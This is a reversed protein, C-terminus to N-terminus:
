YEIERINEVLGGVMDAAFFKVRFLNPAEAYVLGAARNEGTREYFKQPPVVVDVFDGLYSAM